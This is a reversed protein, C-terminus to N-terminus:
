AKIDILKGIILSGATVMVVAVVLLFKGAGTNFLPNMYGRNIVSLVLAIGIPLATLIWRSLRGQATLTRVLRRLEMRVRVTEVVRDLVEASNSGMERQLRAVLAVQDLDPNQMRVVTVKLADELQAGFQEDAIVRNFESKSPETADNAVVNLAGVLSHGSRLASALVDLNDPLQDAFARRKRALKGLVLVRVLYPTAPIGFLFGLPGIIANLVLCVLLTAVITLLVLQTPTAPIDALELTSGLREAWSLRGSEERRRALFNKPRAAPKGPEETTHTLTPQVSVFGGVRSVLPEARGRVVNGIGLALLCAIVIVVVLMAIRSQILRDASSAHYPKAPTLTLKPSEYRTTAVGKVGRASVRVDVQVGPKVPSKYNLLYENSLRQGISDFIPKLQSPGAARIFSGGSSSALRSLTKQDFSKSVLGVSFVRVHQGALRGFVERPKVISGVDSGDSLLVISSPAVDAGAILALSKDLGDYIKTGFALKPTTRLANAIKAPDTTFPLLVHVSGDFTVIALQQHPSRRGALARAAATADEIPKGKMSLSSDIALVVASRSAQASGQRAVRLGLVPTGNETVNVQSRTLAVGTPLTLIYSRDPYAAGGAEVLRPSDAGAAVGATLTLAAAVLGLRLVTKM